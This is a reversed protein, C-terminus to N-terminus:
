LPLMITHITMLFKPIKEMLQLTLVSFAQCLDFFFQMNL